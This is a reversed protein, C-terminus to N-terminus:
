NKLTYILSPKRREIEYTLMDALFNLWRQFVLSIWSEPDRKEKRQSYQWERLSDQKIMFDWELHLLHVWRSRGHTAMKHSDRSLVQRWSQFSILVAFASSPASAKLIMHKCFVRSWASRQAEWFASQRATSSSLSLSSVSFSFSGWVNDCKTLEIDENKQSEIKREWFTLTGECLEQPKTTTKM